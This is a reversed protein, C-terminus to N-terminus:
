ASKLFEQDRDIELVNDLAQLIDALRVPKALSDDMGINKCLRKQQYQPDATLAVILVDSWPADAGRISLTAEIGDMIPMHIDMLVVDIDRTKLIDIAQQGDNALHIEAVLSELLSSIVMHNTANDDVVLIRLNSYNTPEPKAKELLQEVLADSNQAAIDNAVSEFPLTLAFVSGKGLESRVSIFGGMLEIIEKTITMGLGTGGFRSAISKDAQTYAEFIQKQQEVTMGIGNDQVAIILRDIQKPTKVTTMVVKVIGNPTFKIANSLLNNLCQEYRMSDFTIDEPVSEDIHYSLKINNKLAKHEWLRIVNEVSVKPNSPKSDLVLKDAHLKSHNLTEDVIRLIKEASTQILELKPRIEENSHHHILADAIGIVGNMPTRVEHSLRALFDNKTKLAKEASEKALRLADNTELQQTIDEFFSIFGILKGSESKQPKSSWKLWITKGNGTLIRCTHKWAHGERKATEWVTQTSELDDPHVIYLIGDERAREMQRQTLHKELFDGHITWEVKECNYYCYGAAGSQLAIDLTLKAEEESTIDEATLLLSGDIYKQKVHLRRGSPMTLKIDATEATRQSSQNSLIDEVLATFSSTNGEGFAGREALVAVLKSYSLEASDQIVGLEFFLQANKNYFELSLDPKFLVIALNTIDGIQSLWAYNHDPHLFGKKNDFEYKNNTNLSTGRAM